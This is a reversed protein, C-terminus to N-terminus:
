VGVTCNMENVYQLSMNGMSAVVWLCSFYSMSM